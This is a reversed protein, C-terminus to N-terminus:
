SFNKNVGEGYISATKVPKNDIVNMFKVSLGPILTVARGTPLTSKANFEALVVAGGITM